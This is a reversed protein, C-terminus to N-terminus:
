ERADLLGRLGAVPVSLDPRQQRHRFLAGEVLAAIHWFPLHALFTSADRHAGYGDLYAARQAANMPWRYWTRGLDYDSPAISLTELDILCPEGGARCVINDACYDGLSIGLACSAPAHRAALEDLAVREGDRLVGSEALADLWRVVQRRWRAAAASPDDAPVARAHVRAQAAGCRRLLEDPWDVGALSQGDVWDSLLAAGACAVVRPVLPRLDAALAAM